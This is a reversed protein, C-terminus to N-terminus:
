AAPDLANYSFTSQLQMPKKKARRHFGLTQFSATQHLAGSQCKQGKFCMEYINWIYKM